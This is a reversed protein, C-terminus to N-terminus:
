IKTEVCLGDLVSLEEGFQVMRNQRLDLSYLRLQWQLKYPISLHDETPYIKSDSSLVKLQRDVYNRLLEISHAFLHSTITSATGLM